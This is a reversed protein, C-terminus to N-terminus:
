HPHGYRLKRMSKILEVKEGVNVYELRKRKVLSKRQKRMLIKLTVKLVVSLHNFRRRKLVKEMQNKTQIILIVKRRSKRMGVDEEESNSTDNCASKQMLIQNIPTVIRDVQKTQIM